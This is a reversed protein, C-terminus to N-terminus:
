FRLLLKKREPRNELNIYMISDVMNLPQDTFYEFTKITLFGLICLLLLLLILLLFYKKYNM